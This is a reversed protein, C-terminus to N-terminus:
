FPTRHFLVGHLGRECPNHLLGLCGGKVPSQIYGGHLDRKSHQSLHSKQACRSLEKEIELSFHESNVAGVPLQLNALM